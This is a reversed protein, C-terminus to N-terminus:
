APIVAVVVVAQMEDIECKAGLLELGNGDVCNRTDRLKRKINLLFKKQM